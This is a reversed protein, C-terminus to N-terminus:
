LMKFVLKQICLCRGAPTRLCCRDLVLIAGHLSSQGPRKEQKLGRPLHSSSPPPPNLATRVVQLQTVDVVVLCAIYSASHQAYAHTHPHTLSTMNWSHLAIVVDSSLVFDVQARARLEINIQIYDLSNYNYRASRWHPRDDNKVEWNTLLFLKRYPFDKNSWWGHM